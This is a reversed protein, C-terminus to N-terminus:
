QFNQPNGYRTYIIKNHQLTVLLWAYCILKYPLTASRNHEGNFCFSFILSLYFIWDSM